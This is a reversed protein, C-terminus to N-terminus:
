YSLEIEVLDSEEGNDNTELKEEELGEILSLIEIALQDAALAPIDHGIANLVLLRNNHSLRLLEKQANLQQDYLIKMDIGNSVPWEEELYDAALVFIPKEQLLLPDNTLENKSNQSIGWEKLVTEWYDRHMASKWLNQINESYNELHMDEVIDTSFLRLLGLQALLEANKYKQHYVRDLKELNRLDEPLFELMVDRAQSDALVFASVAEPYKELFLRIVAGGFGHGVFVYPGMEGSESLLFNLDDAMTTLNEEELSSESWAIGARDYSCVRVFKALEEQVLSWSLTGGLIDASLIVTEEGEGTCYLHMMKGNVEYLKGLPGNNNLSSKQLLPGLVSSLLLLFLIIFSSWMFILKFHRFITKKTKVLVKKEELNEESM